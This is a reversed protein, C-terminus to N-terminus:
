NFYLYNFFIRCNQLPHWPVWPVGVPDAGSQQFWVEGPKMSQNMSTLAHVHASTTECCYWKSPASSAIAMCM